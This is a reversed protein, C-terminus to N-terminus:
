TEVESCDAISVSGPVTQTHQAGPLKPMGVMCSWALPVADGSLLPLLVSKSHTFCVSNVVIRQTCFGLDGNLHMRSVERSSFLRQRERFNLLSALVPARCRFECSRRGRMLLSNM